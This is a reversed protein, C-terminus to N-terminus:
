AYDGGVSRVLCVDGVAAYIAVLTQETVEIGLLMAFPRVRALGRSFAGISYRRMGRCGFRQRDVQEIHRDIRACTDRLGACHNLSVAAPLVVFGGRM